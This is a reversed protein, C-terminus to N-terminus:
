LAEELIKRAKEAEECLAGAHDLKAKAAVIAVRYRITEDQAARNQVILTKLDDTIRDYLSRSM